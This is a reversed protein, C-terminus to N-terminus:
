FIYFIKNEIEEGLCILFAFVGKLERKLGVRWREVKKKKIKKPFFIM